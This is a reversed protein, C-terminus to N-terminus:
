LRLPVHTESPTPHKKEDTLVAEEREKKQEESKEGKEEVWEREREDSGLGTGRQSDQTRLCNCLRLTVRSVQKFVEQKGSM